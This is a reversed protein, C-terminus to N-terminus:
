HFQPGDDEDGRTDVLHLAPAPAASQRGDIAVMARALAESLERAAGEVLRVTTSGVSIHVAGCSCRDIKCSPTRVLTKIIHQLPAERAPPYCGRV